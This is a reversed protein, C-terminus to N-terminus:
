RKNLFHILPAGPPEKRRHCAGLGSDWFTGRPRLFNRLLDEKVEIATDSRDIADASCRFAYSSSLVTHRQMSRLRVPSHVCRLKTKRFFHLAARFVMSQHARVLVGFAAADQKKALALMAEIEAM